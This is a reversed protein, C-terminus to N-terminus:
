MWWVCKLDQERSDSCVNWFEHRSPSLKRWSLSAYYEPSASDSGSMLLPPLNLDTRRSTFLVPELRFLLWYHLVKAVSVMFMCRQSLSCDHQFAYASILMSFSLLLLPMGPVSGSGAEGNAFPVMSMAKQFKVYVHLM